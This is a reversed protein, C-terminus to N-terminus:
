LAPAGMSSLKHNSSLYKITALIIEEEIESFLDEKSCNLFASGYM